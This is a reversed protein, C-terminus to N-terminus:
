GRGPPGPPGTGEPQEPDDTNVWEEAAGLAASTTAQPRRRRDQLWHSAEDLRIIAQEYSRHRGLAEVREIMRGIAAVIDVVEDRQAPGLGEDLRPPM